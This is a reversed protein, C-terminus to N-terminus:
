STACPPQTFDGIKIGVGATIRWLIVAGPTGIGKKRAPDNQDVLCFDPGKSGCFTDEGPTASCSECYRGRDDKQCHKRGDDGPVCLEGYDCFTKDPCADSVCRGVDCDARNESDCVCGEAYNGSIGPCM